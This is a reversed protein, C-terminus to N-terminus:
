SVDDARDTTPDHPGLDTGSCTRSAPPVQDAPMGSHRVLGTYDVDRDASLEDAQPSEQVESSQKVGTPVHLIGDGAAIHRHASLDIAAAPPLSLEAVNDTELPTRDADARSIDIRIRAPCWFREASVSTASDRISRYVNRKRAAADTLFHDRVPEQSTVLDHGTTTGSVPLLAATGNRLFASIWSSSCCRGGTGDLDITKLRHRETETLLAVPHSSASKTAPKTRPRRPTRATRPFMPHAVERKECGPERVSASNPVTKSKMPTPASGAISREPRATSRHPTHTAPMMSIERATAAVITPAVACLKTEADMEISRSPTAEPADSTAMLERAPRASCCVPLRM